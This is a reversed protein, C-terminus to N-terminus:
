KIYGKKQAEDIMDSVMDWVSPIGKEILGARKLVQEKTVSGKRWTHGNTLMNHMFPQLRDLSACFLADPTQQKDFEVWLSRLEEADKEPLSSFLKDAALNEREEKDMSANEDYCFTDGAYIEVLDHVLCMKVCRNVDAGEPAYTALLMAMVAIHWSHEADTERRTKDTLLTQRYISKMKDITILFELRSKLEKDSSHIFDAM